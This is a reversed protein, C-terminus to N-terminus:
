PRTPIIDANRKKYAGNLAEDAGTVFTKSWEIIGAACFAFFACLVVKQMFTSHSM